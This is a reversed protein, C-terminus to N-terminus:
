EVGNRGVLIWIQKTSNTGNSAAAAATLTLHENIKSYVKKKLPRLNDISDM